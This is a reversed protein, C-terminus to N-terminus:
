LNSMKINCHSSFSNEANMGFFVRWNSSSSAVFETMDPKTTFCTGHMNFVSKPSFLNQCCEESRFYQHHIDCFMVFDQCRISIDDILEPLTLDNDSLISDLTTELNTLLSAYKPKENDPIYNHSLYNVIEKSSPSVVFHIYSALDDTM